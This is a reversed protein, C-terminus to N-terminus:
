STSPYFCSYSCFYYIGYGKVPKEVLALCGCEQTVGIIVGRCENCTNREAGGYDLHYIVSIHALSVQRIWEEIGFVVIEAAKVRDETSMEILIRELMSTAAVRVNRSLKPNAVFFIAVISWATGMEAIARRASAELANVAWVQDRESTLKTYIRENLLFSPKPAVAITTNM